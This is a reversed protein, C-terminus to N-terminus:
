VVKKDSWRGESVVLTLMGSGNTDGKLNAYWSSGGDSTPSIFVRRDDGSPYEADQHWHGCILVDARDLGSRRGHSLGKWWEGVKYWAGAQHGHVVGVNTGDLTTYVVAEEFQSPRLFQVHAFEPRGACREELDYNLDIGFDNDPGAAPAKPGNRVSAHNSPVSIVTLRKTIPALLEIGAWFLRRATRIQATLHRDNTERQSSTNYFNEIIDGADILVIEQCRLEKAREAARHFSRMVREQLEPTGGKEDVKGVQLDAMSIIFASNTPNSPPDPVYVYNEIAREIDDYEFAMATLVRNPNYTIKEYSGDSLRVTKGRSTIYERPVGFFHDEGEEEVFSNEIQNAPRANRHRRITAESVGLKDANVTHPASPDIMECLRCHSHV